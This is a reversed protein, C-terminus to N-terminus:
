PLNGDGSFEHQRDESMAILIGFINQVAVPDIRSEVAKDFAAQLVSAARGEDHVPLGKAIKIKAIKGALQQRHAILGIIKRDVDSIEARIQELSMDYVYGLDPMFTVM